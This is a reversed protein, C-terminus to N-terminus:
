ALFLMISCERGVFYCDTNKWDKKGRNESKSVPSTVSILDKRFKASSITFTWIKSTSSFKSVFLKNCERHGNKWARCTENVIWLWNTVSVNFRFPEHRVREVVFRVFPTLSTFIPSFITPKTEVLRIERAPLDRRIIVSGLSTNHANSLSQRSGTLNKIGANRIIEGM